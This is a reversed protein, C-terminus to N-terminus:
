GLLSLQVAGGVNVTEAPSSKLVNFVQRDSLRYSRALRQVAANGSETATLREYERIIALDRQRRLAAACRPIYLDTSGYRRVLVDAAEVGVVGALTAFRLEGLKTQRKPVPFTTGGLVEILRLAHPLGIAEAIERATAPLGELELSEPLTEANM